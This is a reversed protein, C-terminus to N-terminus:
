LSGIYSDKEVPELPWGLLLAQNVRRRRKPDDDQRGQLDLFIPEQIDFM